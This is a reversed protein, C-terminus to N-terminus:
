FLWLTHRPPVLAADPLQRADVLLRRLLFRRKRRAALLDFRRRRGSFFFFFFFFCVEVGVVRSGEGRDVELVGVEAVQDELREGGPALAPPDLPGVSHRDAAAVVVRRLSRLLLFLLCLCRAFVGGGVVLFFFFFPLAFEFVEEVEERVGGEGAGAEVPALVLAYVPVSHGRAFGHRRAEGDALPEGALRLEGKSELFPAGFSRRRREDAAERLRM